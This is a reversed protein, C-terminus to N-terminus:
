ARLPHLSRMAPMPEETGPATHSASQSIVRILVCSFARAAFKITNSRKLRRGRYPPPPNKRNSPRFRVYKQWIRNVDSASHLITGIPVFSHEHIRASYGIVSYSMHFVPSSDNFFVVFTLVSFSRASFTLASSAAIPWRSFSNPLPVTMFSPSDSALMFTSDTGVPDRESSM